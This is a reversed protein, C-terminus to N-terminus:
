CSVLRSDQCSITKQSSSVYVCVVDTKTTTTTTITTVAEVTVLAESEVIVFM